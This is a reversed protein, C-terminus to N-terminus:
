SLVQNQKGHDSDKPQDSDERETESSKMLYFHPPGTPSVVDPGSCEVADASRGLVRRHNSRQSHAAARPGDIDPSLLQRQFVVRAANTRVPFKAQHKDPRAPALTASKPQVVKKGFIPSAVEPIPRAFSVQHMYWSPQDLLEPDDLGELSPAKFAADSTSPMTEESGVGSDGSGCGHSRGIPSATCCEAVARAVVDRDDVHARMSLKGRNPLPVDRSVSAQSLQLVHESNAGHGIANSRNLQPSAARTPVEKSWQGGADTEVGM